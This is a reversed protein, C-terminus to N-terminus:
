YGELKAIKILKKLKKSKNKVTLKAYYTGNAIRYGDLDRGDWSIEQYGILNSFKWTKIPRGTVTYITLQVDNAADTLMFAFRITTMTGDQRIAATFPNPHCTFFQISLDKGPLYPFTRDTFNGALDSAKVTLSDLSSEQTPYVTVSIHELDGSTTIQSYKDQSLLKNNHYLLITSPDIESPDSIFISFPKDKATYDIFNLARGYVNISVDPKRLDEIYAAAFKGYNTSNNYIFTQSPTGKQGISRWRLLTSDFYMVSLSGSQDSVQALQEPYFLWQLTDGPTLTPRCGVTASVISDNGLAVWHSSSKLPTSDQITDTFIFLTIPTILNYLPHIGIGHGTTYLTDSSYSLIRKCIHASGEIRNNETNSERTTSIIIVAYV